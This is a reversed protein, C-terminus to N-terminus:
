PARGVPDPYAEDLSDMFVMATSLGCQLLQGLQADTVGPELDTSVETVVHIRGNDRVRVYTKPWIRDANWENCRELVEELREIAVERNWQGRVQFIEQHDGFLFFSFPRGRWLAGVDGEDDVFYSFHHDALWAMIRQASVPALSDPHQPVTRPPGEPAGGGRRGAWCRLLGDRFGGM